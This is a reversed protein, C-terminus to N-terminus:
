HHRASVLEPASPAHRREALPSRMRPLTAVSAAACGHMFAGRGCPSSSFLGSQRRTCVDKRNATLWSHYAELQRRLSTYFLALFCSVVEKKKEKVALESSSTNDLKGRLSAHRGAPVQEAYRAQQGFTICREFSHCPRIPSLPM